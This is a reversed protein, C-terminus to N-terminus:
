CQGPTGWSVSMLLWLSVPPVRPGTGVATDGSDGGRTVWPAGAAGLGAGEQGWLPALAGQPCLHQPSRPAVSFLAPIRILIEARKGLRHCLVTELEKKGPEASDPQVERTIKVPSAAHSRANQSMGQSKIVAQMSGAHRCASPMRRLGAALEAAGAAGQPRQAGAPRPGRPLLVGTRAAGTRSRHRNPNQPHEAGAARANPAPGPRVRRM